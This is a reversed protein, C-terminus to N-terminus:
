LMGECLICPSSTIRPDLICCIHTYSELWFIAYCVQNILGLVKSLVDSPKYEIDELEEADEEAGHEWDDEDIADEVTARKSWSSDSPSPCVTEIFSKAALHLVHEMCRGRHQKAQWCRGDSDDLLCELARM